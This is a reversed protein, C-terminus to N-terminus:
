PRVRSALERRLESAISASFRKRNARAAPRLFPRPGAHSTGLELYIAIHVRGPDDVGVSWTARDKTVESDLVRLARKLRGTDEPARRRADTALLEASPRTAQELSEGLQALHRLQRLLKTSQVKTTSRPM